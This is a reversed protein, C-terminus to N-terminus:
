RRAREQFIKDLRAKERVKGPLFPIKGKAFLKLGAGVDTFLDKTRLKFEVLMSLEHVRGFREVSNTFSQHFSMVAPETAKIGKELAMNRMADMLRSIRIGNPCRTGCTECGICMWIARSGLLGEEDGLQIRRIVGHNQWEFWKVTPCGASCKGCQYCANLNQGSREAVKQAFGNM